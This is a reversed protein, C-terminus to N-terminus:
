RGAGPVMGSVPNRGLNSKIQQILILLAVYCFYKARV